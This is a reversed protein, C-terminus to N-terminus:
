RVVITETKELSEGTLLNIKAIVEYTGRNAKLTLAFGNDRKTVTRIGSILSPISYEVSHINALLAEDGSISVTTRGGGFRTSFDRSTITLADYAEINVIEISSDLGMLRKLQAIKVLREMELRILAREEAVVAAKSEALAALTILKNLYLENNRAEITRVAAVVQEQITMRQGIIELQKYGAVIQNEIKLNLKEAQLNIIRANSREISIRAAYDFGIGNFSIFSYKKSAIMDSAARAQYSNSMLETSNRVALEVAEEATAPLVDSSDAPLAGLTFDQGLGRNLAIQMAQKEAIILSQLGYIDQRLQFLDRKAQFVTADSGMGVAQQALAQSYVEELAAEQTEFSALLLEYHKITLFNITLGELINLKVAESAYKEAISLDQSAQYAFWDSPTPVVSQLIALTANVNILSINASPLFEGRAVAVNQQAQYYKEYQIQIDLNRGLVESRLEELTLEAAFSRIGILLLGLLFSSKLLKTWM